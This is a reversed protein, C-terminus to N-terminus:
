GRQRSVLASLERHLLGDDGLNVELLRRLHAISDLDLEHCHVGVTSADRHAIVGSMRITNAGQDLRIFLTCSEGEAWAFADPVRVLAGRLSVDLLECATKTGRVDLLSPRHFPIRSFDRRESPVVVKAM